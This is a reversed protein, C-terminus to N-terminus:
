VVKKTGTLIITLIRADADTSLVDHRLIAHRPLNAVDFQDGSIRFQGATFVPRQGTDFISTWNSGNDTSYFIDLEIDDTTSPVKLTAVWDLLEVQYGEPVDVPFHNSIDEGVTIEARFDVTTMEWDRVAPLTPSEDMVSSMDPGIRAMEILQELMDLSRGYPEVNTAKIKHSWYGGAHRGKRWTSDVGEILWEGYLDFEPLDVFLRMGPDVDYDDIEFELRTALANQRLSGECMDLLMQRTNVYRQELMSQWIGSGEEIVARAAISVEDKFQVINGFQARYTVELTEGVGLVPEPSFNHIGWGEVDYYWEFDGIPDFGLRGVTQPSGNRTITPESAFFGEEIFFDRTAGDGNFTIDITEVINYETRGYQWNRFNAMTQNVVLNRYETAPLLEFPAFDATFPGFHLVKDADIYWFYGTLKSLKNFFNTVTEYGSTPLTGTITPGPNTVGDLTIGESTLAQGHVQSVIAYLSLDTFTASILRRDCIATFDGATGTYYQAASKDHKMRNLTDIHGAFWKKYGDETIRVVSGLIPEFGRLKDELGFTLKSRSNIQRSLTVSQLKFWETRDIDSVTVTIAM